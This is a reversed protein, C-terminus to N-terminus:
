AEKVVWYGSSAKEVSVVESGRVFSGEEAAFYGAAMLALAAAAFSRFYGRM